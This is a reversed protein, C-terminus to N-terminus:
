AKCELARDRREFDADLDFTSLGVAVTAMDYKTSQKFSATISKITQNNAHALQTNVQGIQANALVFQGGTQTAQNREGIARRHLEVM